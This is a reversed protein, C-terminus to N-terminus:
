LPDISTPRGTRISEYTADIAAISTAADKLGYRMPAGSTIALHVDDLIANVAVSERNPAVVPAPRGVQDFLTAMPTDDDVILHGHSGILRFSSSAAGISPAATPRGVTVTAVVGHTFLMSVVAIDEVGAEQHATSFAAASWAFSEVPECGTVARVTDVCYGLFNMIEGGGSLSADVVLEPREVATAFQSGAALFEVDISRPFGIEGLEVVTRARQISPLLTRNIVAVVRDTGSAASLLRRADDGTTAVPKDVLVHHGAVLVESAAQAHRTPETCVVVLDVDDGINDLRDIANATATVRADRQAWDPADPSEYVGVLDFERHAAVVRAYNDAHRVGSYIATRIPSRSM